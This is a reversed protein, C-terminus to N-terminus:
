KGVPIFISFFLLCKRWTNILWRWQRVVSRADYEPPVAIVAIVIFFFYLLLHVHDNPSKRVDIFMLVTLICMPVLKLLLLLLLTHARYIRYATIKIEM